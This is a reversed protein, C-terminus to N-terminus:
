NAVLNTAVPVRYAKLAPVLGAMVALVVVAGLYIWQEPAVHLWDIGEGVAQQMYRSGLAGLLHGAVLGLLGGVLGILGAEVCILTLIRARTAGLARLIAIERMRASVSNYISVLVSVSAVFTVLGSVLLLVKGSPELFLQFFERMVSAPNVAAAENRNNIAYMLSQTQFPGRAEVLIASILWDEKPLSLEITGDANLTYNKEHDHGHHDHGHGHGHDDQPDPTPSTASTVLGGSPAAHDHDHDAHADTAQATTPAAHDHGAHDHDHDHDHDAHDATAQTTAPAAHDHAHDHAHEHDHEDKAGVVPAKVSAIDTVSQGANLGHIAQIGDDHEAITYFTLIPIYIVRDSATNTRELVGVVTWQEDHIDVNIADPSPTGHTAQFTDGMKLGTKTSVDWGVVAEFKAPHFSKGEALAYKRDKRFEFANKPDFGSGDETGGFMRPSTGVIRHNKYSDGVAFPIARRVEARYKTSMAEYLSYPINGPSRDIHYITNLTLQLPSGKAGILVDFGYDSQGFLKDGERLLIMVSIALAVGLVVSLLTLCTGLARQRMNKLVLQFLNM